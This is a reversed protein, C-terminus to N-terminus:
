EVRGYRATVPHLPNNQNILWAWMQDGLSFHWWENIHRQFGATFMINGLLQRHQHYLQEVPNNSDAFYDPYSRPSIEDIPSGMDINNNHADVLTIDIAAGTSHPPPTALDLSPAAWFQYVEQLIEQRKEISLEQLKLGRLQLLQSFSYDVMFQQVAVPRYADFIQIRWGPHQQQLLKQAQILSDLVGARVYFPSYNLYPAVLQQYPHPYVLSFVDVPIAILPEGCEVIPEQQYPKM